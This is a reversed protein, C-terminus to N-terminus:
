DEMNDPTPNVLPMRPCFIKNFSISTSPVWFSSVKDKRLMARETLLLLEVGPSCELAPRSNFTVINSM